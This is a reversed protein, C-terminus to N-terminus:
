GFDHDQYPDDRKTFTSFTQVAKLAAAQLDAALARVAITMTVIGDQLTSRFEDNLRAITRM